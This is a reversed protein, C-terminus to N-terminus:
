DYAVTGTLVLGSFEPRGKAPSEGPAFKCQMRLLRLDDITPIVVSPSTVGLLLKVEKSISESGPPRLVAPALIEDVEARRHAILRGLLHTM